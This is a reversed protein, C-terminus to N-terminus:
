KIKTCSEFMACRNCGESKPECTDFKQSWEQLQKVIPILEIGAKTLNYSIVVTKIEHKTKSVLGSSVLEELRMSIARSTVGPLIKEFDRYRYSNDVDKSMELLLFIMWKKGLLDLNKYLLCNKGELEQYM